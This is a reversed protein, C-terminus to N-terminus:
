VDQVILTTPVASFKSVALNNCWVTGLGCVLGVKLSFWNILFSSFVFLTFLVVEVVDLSWLSSGILLTLLPLSDILDESTGSLFLKRSLELCIM